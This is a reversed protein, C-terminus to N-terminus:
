GMGRGEIPVSLREVHGCCAREIIITFSGRSARERVRVASERGCRPCRRSVAEERLRFVEYALDLAEDVDGEVVGRRARWEKLIRVAYPKVYSLERLRDLGRLAEEVARARRAALAYRSGESVVEFDTSWRAGMRELLAVVVSAEFPSLYDVVLEPRFSPRPRARTALRRSAEEVERSSLGLAILAVREFREEVESMEAV